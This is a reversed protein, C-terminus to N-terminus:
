LDIRINSVVKALEIEQEEPVSSGEVRYVQVNTIGIFKLITKLYPEVYDISKMPGSSYVGKSAIAIYVKKEKLLGEPGSAGMTFTLGARVIQDIWAKLSSHINFNYVPAGIVIYDSEKLEMIANESISSVLQQEPTKHEPRTFFSQLHSQNLHPVFPENLDRVKVVSGPNAEHLRSVISNGLKISFSATGRPSSIVHLIKKM